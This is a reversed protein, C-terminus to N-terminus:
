CAACCASPSRRRLAHGRGAPARAAGPWPSLRLGLAARSSWALALITCPCYRPPRALWFARSSPVVRRADHHRPVTTAGDGLRHCRTQATPTPATGCGAHTRCLCLCVRHTQSRWGLRGTSVAVSPVCSCCVTAARRTDTPPLSALLATSRVVGARTGGRGGPQSAAAPLLSGVGPTAFRATSSVLGAAASRLPPM